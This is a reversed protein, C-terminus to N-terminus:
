ASKAYERAIRRHATDATRDALARLDAEATDPNHDKWARMLAAGADPGADAATALVVEATPRM